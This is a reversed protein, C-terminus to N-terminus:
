RWSVSSIKPIVYASPDGQNKNGQHVYNLNSFVTWSQNIVQYDLELGSRLVRGTNEFMITGTSVDRQIINMAETHFLNVVFLQNNASYSYALDTTEIIEAKLDPNGQLGPGLNIGKQVFNPTNFGESKLLKISQDEDLKYIASLQPSIHTGSEDNNVYRAGVVFRWSQINYDAQLYFAQEQSKGPAMIPAVSAGTSADFIQYESVQRTEIEYGYLFSLQKSYKTDM